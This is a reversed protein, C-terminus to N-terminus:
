GEVTLEVGIVVGAIRRTVDDPELIARLRGDFTVTDTPRIPLLAELPEADVVLRLRRAQLEGVLQHSPLSLPRCRATVSAQERHVILDQGHDSLQAQLAVRAEAPSM